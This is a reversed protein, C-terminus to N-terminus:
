LFWILGFHFQGETHYTFKSKPVEIQRVLATKRSAHFIYTYMCGSLVINNYGFNGFIAHNNGYSISFASTSHCADMPGVTACTRLKTVENRYFFPHAICLYKELNLLFLTTLSIAIMLLKSGISNIHIYRM